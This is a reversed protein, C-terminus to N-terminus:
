ALKTKMTGRLGIGLLRMIFFFRTNIEYATKIYPCSPIFTPKCSSCSVVIKFGLGRTSKMSFRVDSDCKKCKVCESLASFVFNSVRHKSEGGLCRELYYITLKQILKNTLKNKGGFKHTKKINRLRSGMLKEVNGVCEKKKVQLTDGYPNNDLLAKFTKSDRDSIYYANKVESLEWSRGIYIKEVVAYYLTNSCGQSLDMLGCFLNIGERGVGLLRMCHRILLNAARLGNM